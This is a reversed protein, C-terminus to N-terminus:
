CLRFTTQGQYVQFDCVTEDPNALVFAKIGVPNPKGPCYLVNHFMVWYIPHDNRGLLPKPRQQSCCGVQLYQILPRVKWLIDQSRMQSTIDNDFVFKLSNRLQLFRNRSMNDAIIPVKWKKEWAMRLYPYNISSMVLTIGLYVHM